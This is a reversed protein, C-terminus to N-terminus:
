FTNILTMFSIMSSVSLLILMSVVSLIENEDHLQAEKPPAEGPEPEMMTANSFGCNRTTKHPLPPSLFYVKPFLTAAYSTSATRLGALHQLMDARQLPPLKWAIKTNIHYLSIRGSPAIKELVLCIEFTYIHCTALVWTGFKDKADQM